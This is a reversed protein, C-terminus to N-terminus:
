WDYNLVRRCKSYICFFVVSFVVNQHTSLFKQGATYILQNIIFSSFKSIASFVNFIYVRPPLRNWTEVSELGPGGITLNRSLYVANVVIWIRSSSVQVVSRVALSFSVYLRWIYSNEDTELHCILSADDNSSTSAELMEFM